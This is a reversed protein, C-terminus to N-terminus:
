SRGSPINIRLYLFAAVLAFLFLLYALANPGAKIWACSGLALALLAPAPTSFNKQIFPPM